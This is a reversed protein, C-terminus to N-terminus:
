TNWVNTPATPFTATATPSHHIARVTARYSKWLAVCDSTLGVDPLQSFDSASLLDAAQSKLSACVAADDQVWATGNWKHLADPRQPVPVSGDGAIHDGEYYAGSPTLWYGNM